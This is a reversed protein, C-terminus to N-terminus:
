PRKELLHLLKANLLMMAEAYVTDRDYAKEYLGRCVELMDADTACDKLAKAAKAPGIKPCGKINDVSDGVLLQTYFNQWGEYEGVQHVPTKKQWDYHTTPIQRMDKDASVIVVKDLGLEFTRISLIDDAEMGTVVVADLHKVAYDRLAKFHVPKHANKRNAKYEPDLAFRFNSRDQPSMYAEYVDCGAERVAADVISKLVNLAHSVPQADVEKGIDEKNLGHTECYANAESKYTFRLGDVTHYVDEVVAGAAYIMGDVDLLAIRSM